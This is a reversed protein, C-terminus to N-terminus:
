SITSSPVLIETDSAVTSNVGWPSSPVLRTKVSCPANRSPWSGGARRESPM